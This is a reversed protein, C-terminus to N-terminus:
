YKILLKQKLHVLFYQFLLIGQNVPARSSYMIGTAQDIGTVLDYLVGTDSHVGVISRRGWDTVYMIDGYM